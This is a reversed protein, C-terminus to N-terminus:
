PKGDLGAAAREQDDVLGMVKAGIHELVQSQECVILHVRLVPEAQQEDALRLETTTEPHGDVLGDALPDDDAVVEATQGAVLQGGIQHM